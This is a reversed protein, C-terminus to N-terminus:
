IDKYNFFLEVYSKFQIYSENDPALTSGDKSPLLQLFFGFYAAEFIFHIDENPIEIVSVSDLSNASITIPNLTYIPKQQADFFILQTNFERNFVNSTEITFEVKELYKQSVNKLSAQVVDFQLSEETNTSDLFDPAFLEFYAISIIYSPTIEADDIQDFDVSKTCSFCTFLLLVVISLNLPKM